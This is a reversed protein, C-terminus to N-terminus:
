YKRGEKREKKEVDIGSEQFRIFLIRLSFIRELDALQSKLM